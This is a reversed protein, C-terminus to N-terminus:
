SSPVQLNWLSLYQPFIWLGFAVWSLLAEAAIAEPFHFSCSIFSKPTTACVNQYSKLSLNHSVM